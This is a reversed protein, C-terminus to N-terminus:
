ERVALFPIESWVVKGVSTHRAGWRRSLEAVLDLGHRDNTELLSPLQRDGDYVELWLTREGRKVVVDIRARDPSSRAHRFANDVLLRTLQACADAVRELRWAGLTERVFSQASAASAAAHPFTCRALMPRRPSTGMILIVKDDAGPPRIAMAADALERPGPPANELVSCLTGIGHDVEVSETQVLGDTYLVISDGPSVKFIDETFQVGGVGLPVGLSTEMPVCGHDGCLLPPLHGARAIVCEGFFPDYVVYVLTSFRSDDSESQIQDIRTLVESPRLDLSGFARVALLLQGMIATARVGQGTVDGVVAAIRGGPLAFAHYLDGGVTARADAPAYGVAIEVGNLSPLWDSLLSHQLALSVQREKERLFANEVALGVRSALETLFEADDQDFDREDAFSCITLVGRHLPVALTSGILRLTVDTARRPVRPVDLDTLPGRALVARQLRMSEACLHGSPYSIPVPWMEHVSLPEPQAPDLYIERHRRLQDAEDLLDITCYTALSPVILRTFADLLASISESLSLTAGAEALIRIREAFRVQAGDPKETDGIMIVVGYTTSPDADVTRMPVAHVRATASGLGTELIEERGQGAQAARHLDIGAGRAPAALIAQVWDCGILETSPVALHHEAAPNCSVITRDSDAVIVAEPVARLAHGVWAISDALDLEIRQLADEIDQLDAEMAEIRADAFETDEPVAIPAPLTAPQAALMKALAEFRELRLRIAAVHRGALEREATAAAREREAQAAKRTERILLRQTRALRPGHQEADAVDRLATTGVTLVRLKAIEAELQVVRLAALQERRTAEILQRQLEIMDEQSHKLEHLVSVTEDKALIIRTRPDELEASRATPPRTPRPRALAKERAIRYAARRRAAEAPDPTCANIVDDAFEDSPRLEGNLRKSITSKSSGISGALDGLTRGSDDILMRLRNCLERAVDDDGKLSEWPRGASTRQREM